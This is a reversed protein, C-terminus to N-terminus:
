SNAILGLFLQRLLEIQESKSIGESLTVQQHTQRQLLRKIAVNLATSKEAWGQSLKAILVRQM